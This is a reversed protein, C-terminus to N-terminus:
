DHPSVKRLELSDPHYALIRRLPASFVEGDGDKIAHYARCPYGCRCNGEGHAIGWHFSGLMGGLEAECSPCHKGDAFGSFYEDICRITKEALATQEADTADTPSIEIGLSECTARPVNTKKLESLKPM